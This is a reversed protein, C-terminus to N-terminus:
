KNIMYCPQVYDTPSMKFINNDKWDDVSYKTYLTWEYFVNLIISVVSVPNYNILHSM